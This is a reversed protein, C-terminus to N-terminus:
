QKAHETPVCIYTDSHPIDRFIYANSHSTHARFFTPTLICFIAINKWCESVSVYAVYTRPTVYQEKHSHPSSGYSVKLQLDNKALSGSIIPGKQPFHGIFILCGIVGRWGTNKKDSHLVVVHWFTCCCTLGREYMAIYFTIRHRLNCTMKRLLAM